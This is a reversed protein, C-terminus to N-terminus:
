ATQPMSASYAPQKSKIEVEFFILMAILAAWPNISSIRLSYRSFTLLSFSMMIPLLFINEQVIKLEPEFPKQVKQTSYFFVAGGIVIVLGIILFITIQGKKNNIIEKNSKTQM